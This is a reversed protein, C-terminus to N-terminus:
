TNTERGIEMRIQREIAFQRMREEHEATEQKFREKERWERRKIFYLNVIFGAVAVVTGIVSLWNLSALGGMM